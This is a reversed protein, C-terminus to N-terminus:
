FPAARATDMPSCTGTDPRGGRIHRPWSGADMGQVHMSYMCTAQRGHSEYGLLVGDASSRPAFKHKPAPKHLIVCRSGIIRLHDYIVAIGTFATFPILLRNQIRRPRRNILYAAGYRIVEPWLDAPLEQDTMLTRSVTEIHLNSNEARGGCHFRSPGM